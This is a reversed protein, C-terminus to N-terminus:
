QREKWRLFEQFLRDRDAQDASARHPEDAGEKPPRSSAQRDPKSVPAPKDDARQRRKRAADDGKAAEPQAIAMGRADRNVTDPQPAGVSATTFGTLSSL